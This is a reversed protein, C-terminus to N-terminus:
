PAGLGLSICYNVQSDNKQNRNLRVNTPELM